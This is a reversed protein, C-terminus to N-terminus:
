NENREWKKGLQKEVWEIIHSALKFGEKSTNILLSGDYGMLLHLYNYAENFYTLMKRNRNGLFEQYDEVKKRSKKTIDSHKMLEDLAILVGMYALHGAARVYKPHEYFEGDKGAKEKLINKANQIYIWPNENKDKKTKM